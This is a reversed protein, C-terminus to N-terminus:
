SNTAFDFLSLSFERRLAEELATLPLGVVNDFSGHIEKVFIGAMEQIGYAGAKDFPQETDIYYTIEKDSLTRFVVETAIAEAHCKGDKHIAFATYVKHSKGSFAKLMRVADQYDRPKGFIERGLAVVTDASIILDYESRDALVARGKRIALTKVYDDPALDETITEDADASLALYHIKLRDFMERRRPSQSALILM